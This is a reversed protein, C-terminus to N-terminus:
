RFRDRLNPDSLWWPQDAGPGESGSQEGRAIAEADLVSDVAAADREDARIWRVFVLVIFPFDLTEAVAWLIAGARQQDALPRMGALGALDTPRHAFFGSVLHTQLRMVIGPIADILLEVVGFALGFGIALSTKSEDATTLPVAILAGLLVAFLEVAALALPTGAAWGPVPGFLLLVCAAPVVLPGLLPNEIVGLRPRRRLLALPQAAMLVVPVVLLLVLVQTTFVWFLTRSYAHPWGNTTWVALATGGGFAAWRRRPWGTTRRARLVYWAGFVATAALLLPNVSWVTLLGSAAPPPLVDEM